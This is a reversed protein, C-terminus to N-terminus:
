NYKNENFNILFTAYHHKKEELRQCIDQNDKIVSNLQQVTESLRMIEANLRDM